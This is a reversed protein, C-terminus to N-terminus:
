EDYDGLWKNYIKKFTNDKKIIDLGKQLEQALISDSKKVCFGVNTVSLDTYLFSFQQESYLTSYYLNVLYNDIIIDVKEELLDIYMQSQTNYKIIKASHKQFFKTAYKDATTGKKVAIVKDYIEKKLKIKGGSKILLSLHTDFHPQLCALSQNTTKNISILGVDIKNENLLTTIDDTPKISIWQYKYGTKKAIAGFVEVNFGEVKGDKNFEFPAYDFVFGVKLIKDKEKVNDCSFLFLVLLILYIRKM